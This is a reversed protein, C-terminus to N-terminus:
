GEKLLSMIEDGNLTENEKLKIALKEVLSYNDKLLTECKNYLTQSLENITDFKTNPILHDKQLLDVNLLGISSDFGFRKVYNILIATAQQIDNSAGTTISDFKIKESARGAYCILIENELDEQTKLLGNDQEENFVAGGVGSTTAQISARAIPTGLLYSMIAHGAEHYAVIDKDKSYQEKTVRNGKFIKQDIAEEICETDIFDKNHKLAIMSAENCITAIDAGTFGATQKSLTDLNIEDDTTFDKLYHLFLQKRITWDKPKSIVLQRDFRGARVLAPDLSELRNTAAIVFVGERGSFGDMEQLLANITQTDETTKSINADRDLGITDIEDIFIICPAWKKAQKFLNRINMAGVGVFRNIFTSANKYIFHVGAETAMAKAIHTKGVGPDGALLLGKLPKTGIKECKEPHKIFDIIFNIDNIIEDHGIVDSLKVNTKEQVIKESVGLTGSMNKVMIVLYGLLFSVLIFSFITSFDIGGTNADICYLVVGKKLLDERFSDGAPYFVKYIDTDKNYDNYKIREIESLDKTKDTHLYVTMMDMNRSYSVKNIKGEDVYKCFENYTLTYEPEEKSFFTTVEYGLAACTVVIFLLISCVILLIIFKKRRNYKKM